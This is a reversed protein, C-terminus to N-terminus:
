TRREEIRRAPSARGGVVLGLTLALGGVLYTVGGVAIMLAGGLHQDALADGAGPLAYLPRPPLALLAGLLTMHMSTLLLAILGTARREDRRGPGGGLVSLWLLFAAVLFSGQELARVWASGRSADLLAPAHWAWVVLLELASLPLPPFLGPWRRVPDWRQGAVGIALLPSAAAVIALHAVMHATFPGAPAHRLPVVWALVLALAGAALAVGRIM